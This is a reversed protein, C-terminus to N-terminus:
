TRSAGKKRIELDARAKAFIKKLAEFSKDAIRHRIEWCDACGILGARLRKEGCYPCEELESVIQAM